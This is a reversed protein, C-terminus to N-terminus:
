QAAPAAPAAPANSDAPHESDQPKVSFDLRLTLKSYVGQQNKLAPDFYSNEITKIAAKAFARDTAEICQVEKPFGTDAVIFEIVAYAPKGWARWKEPYTLPAPRFVRAPRDPKFNPDYRRSFHATSTFPVPTDSDPKASLVGTAALLLLVLLTRLPLLRNM